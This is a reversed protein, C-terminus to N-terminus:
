EPNIIAEVEKLVEGPDVDMFAGRRRNFWIFTIVNGGITREGYAYEYRVGLGLRIGVGNYPAATTMKGDSSITVGMKNLNEISVGDYGNIDCEGQGDRTSTFSTHVNTWYIGRSGAAYNQGKSGLALTGNDVYIVNGSGVEYKSWAKLLKGGDHIIPFATIQNEGIADGEIADAEISSKKLLDAVDITNSGPELTKERGGWEMHPEGGIVGRFEDDSIAAIEDTIQVYIKARTVGDAKVMVLFGPRDTNENFSTGPRESFAFSGDKQLSRSLMEQKEQAKGEPQAGRSAISFEAGDPLQDFLEKFNMDGLLKLGDVTMACFGSADIATPQYEDKIKFGSIDEGVSSFDASVEVNFYNSSIKSGSVDLLLAVAYTKGAECGLGKLSIAVHDGEVAKATVAFLDEGGRTQVEVADAVTIEAKELDAASLAPTALFKAVAGQNDLKVLGDAYEPVYVLSNVAAGTAIEYKKDGVTIIFKGVGQEVTVSSGGLVLKSGDSLTLTWEGDQEVASVISAGTTLASELKAKIDAYAGELVGVRSELEDTDDSCSTFTGMSCVMVGCLLANLFQKNM